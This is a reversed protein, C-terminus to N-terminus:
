WRKKLWALVGDRAAAVAAYFDKAQTESTNMNYRSDSSWEKVIAWNVELAKNAQSAQRFEDKLGSINLLKELDHSYSDNILRRDPFDHRKIQKAICAKLACEIAYGLLYYTGSFYRNDLLVRAEKVRLTAISQLDLRNM